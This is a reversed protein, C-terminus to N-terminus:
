MVAVTRSLGDLLDFKLCCWGPRDLHLAHVCLLMFVPRSLFVSDLFGVPCDENRVSILLMGAGPPQM